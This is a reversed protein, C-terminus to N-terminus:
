HSKHPSCKKNTGLSPTAMLEGSLVRTMANKTKRAASIAGNQVTWCARQAPRGLAVRINRHTLRKLDFCRQSQRSNRYRCVIRRRSIRNRQAAPKVIVRSKRRVICNRACRAVAWLHAKGIRARDRNAYAPLRPRAVRWCDHIRRIVRHLEPISASRAELLLCFTRDRIRYFHGRSMGINHLAQM